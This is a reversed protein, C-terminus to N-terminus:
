LERQWSQQYEQSWSKLLYIFIYWESHVIRCNEVSITAMDMLVLFPWWNSRLAAQMFLRQLTQIERTSFVVTSQQKSWVCIDLNRWGHLYQLYNKICSLQKKKSLQSARILVIKHISTMRIEMTQRKELCTVHRDEMIRKRAAKLNEPVMGLNLGGKKFEDAM